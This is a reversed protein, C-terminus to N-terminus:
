LIGGAALSPRRLTELSHASHGQQEVPGELSARDLLLNFTKRRM